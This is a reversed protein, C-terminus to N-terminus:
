KYNKQKPLVDMNLISIENALVKKKGISNVIVIIDIYLQALNVFM